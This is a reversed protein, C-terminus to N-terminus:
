PQMLPEPEESPKVLRRRTKAPLRSELDVRAEQTNIPRQGRSRNARGDIPSVLATAKKMPKARVSQSMREGCSEVDVSGRRLLDGVRKTM